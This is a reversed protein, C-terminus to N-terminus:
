ESTGQERYNRKKRSRNKRKKNSVINYSLSFILNQSQPKRTQLEYIDEGLREYEFEFTNFLDTVRLSATLRNNYMKYRMSWDFRITPRNTGNISQRRGNYRINLDTNLRKLLKFNNKMNLSYGYQRNNQSELNINKLKEWYTDANLTIKWFNWRHFKINFEVGYADANGQNVFRMLTIEDNEIEFVSTIIDTKGRYFLTSFFSFDNQNLHYTFELNNTFEPVLDPNGERDFTSQNTFAFPNIHYLSPRSIRRSYGFALQQKEGLEYTFHVSPFLNTFSQEFSTSTINIHGDGEFAETRLGLQINWKDWKFKSLLYLAYTNSAFEFQQTEFDAPSILEIREKNSVTRRTFLAGTEIIWTDSIPHTYDLAINHIRNDYDQRSENILIDDIFIDQELNNNNANLNYDFELFHGKSTFNRRYNLNYENTYHEHYNDLFDTRTRALNVNERIYTNPLDHASLFFSGKLSLEDKPSLFLDIGANFSPVRGMFMTKYDQREELSGIRRLADGTSQFQNASFSLGTSVNLFSTGYNASLRGSYRNNTGISANATANWGINEDKRLVINILGTLGDAQYKASPSTIIEVKEVQSAGIQQLLDQNNLPSPKGNVLIKVNGGGRLSITGSIPDTQIEPLQEFAELLDVGAHQLDAGFNIVRHDMKLETTTREEKVVIEDLQALESELEIIWPKPLNDTNEREIRFTKYGLSSIELYLFVKPLNLNFVGQENTSTGDILTSDAGYAAITAFFISEQTERDIVKGSVKVISAHLNSFHLCFLFIVAPSKM